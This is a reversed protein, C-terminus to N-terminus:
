LSDWFYVNHIMDEVSDNSWNIPAPTHLTYCFPFTQYEVEVTEYGDELFDRVYGRYDQITLQLARYCAEEIIPVAERQELAQKVSNFNFGKPVKVQHNAFNESM